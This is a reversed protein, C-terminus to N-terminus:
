RYQNTVGHFQQSGLEPLPKATGPHLASFPQLPMRQHGLACGVSGARLPM